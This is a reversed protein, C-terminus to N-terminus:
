SAFGRLYPLARAVAEIEEPARLLLGTADWTGALFSERPGDPLTAPIRELAGGAGKVLVERARLDITIELTPDREIASQLAEVRDRPLTACPIGLAVCNGFFIEAFSEAVVARIGRRM